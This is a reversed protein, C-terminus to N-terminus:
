PGTFSGIDQSSSPKQDEKGCFGEPYEIKVTGDGVTKEGRENEVWFKVERLDEAFNEIAKTNADFYGEEYFCTDQADVPLHLREGAHLIVVRCNNEQPNYLKCNGCIREIHEKKKRGM